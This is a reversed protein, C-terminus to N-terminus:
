DFMCFFLLVRVFMYVRVLIIGLFFFIVLCFLMFFFFNIILFNGFCFFGVCFDIMEKFLIFRLVGDGLVFEVNIIRCCDCLFGMVIGFECFFVDYVM